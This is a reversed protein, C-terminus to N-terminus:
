VPSLNLAGPPLVSFYLRAMAPVLDMVLHFDVLNKSYSELRKLDFLSIFPELLSPSVAQVKDGSEVSLQKSQCFSYALGCSLNRFEFGLLSMMRKRFDTTYSSLWDAGLGGPLQVEQNEMPKIMLCSYEGTLENATQRLYIPQMDNKQWFKFLEKTVGFSTGIWHITL